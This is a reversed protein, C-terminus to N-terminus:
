EKRHATRQKARILEDDRKQLLRDFDDQLVAKPKGYFLKQVAAQLGGAAALGGVILLFPPLSEYPM